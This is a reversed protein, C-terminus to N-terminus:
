LDLFRIWSWTPRVWLSECLCMILSDLSPCLIKLAALCFHSRVHLIGRHSWWCIGWWFGQFESPWPSIHDLHEFSFVTVRCSKDLLVTRWFHLSTLVNGSLCFSLSNTVMLGAKYSISLHTRSFDKGRSLIGCLLELGYSSIFIEPLLLYSSMTFVLM